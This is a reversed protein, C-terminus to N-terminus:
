NKQLQALHYHTIRRGWTPHIPSEPRAEDLKKLTTEFLTRAEPKSGGFQEPTYFKDMAEQLYVRPNDPNLKKAVQLAEAAAPGYVMFRNMPDAMLRLTAIMKKVVYIESNDPSLAEAQKLLVDARDAIPDTQDAGMGPKGGSLMYGKNVQALAAYYFPLWETKEADAIRAFAASIETLSEPNIVTDIATVLPEMARTYKDSQATAQIAIFFASIFLIKKM